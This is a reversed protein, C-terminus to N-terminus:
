EGGLFHGANRRVGAHASCYERFLRGSESRVESSTVPTGARVRTLVAIGGPYAALVKGYARGCARVHSVEIAGLVDVLVVNRYSGLRIAADIHIIRLDKVLDRAGM